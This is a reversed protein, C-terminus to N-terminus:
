SPEKCQTDRFQIVQASVDTDVFQIGRSLFSGVKGYLLPDHITGNVVQPDGQSYHWTEDVDMYSTGNVRSDHWFYRTQQPAYSDNSLVRRTTLDSAQQGPVGFTWHNEVLVGTTTQQFGMAANEAPLGFTSKLYAAVDADNIWLRNVIFNGNPHGQQCAAPPEGDTHAELMFVVPGREFPGVSVRQCHYLFYDLATLPNNGPGWGAPRATAFFGNPALAGTNM